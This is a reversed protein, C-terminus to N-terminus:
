TSNIIHYRCHLSATLHQNSEVPMEKRCAVRTKKTCAIWVRGKYKLPPYTPPRTSVLRVPLRRPRHAPGNAASCLIVVRAPCRCFLPLDAYVRRYSSPPPPVFVLRHSVLLPPSVLPLRSVTPPSGAPQLGAAIPGNSFIRPASFTSTWCKTLRESKFNKKEKQMGKHHVRM